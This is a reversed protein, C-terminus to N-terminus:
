AGRRLIDHYNVAIGAVVFHLTGDLHM